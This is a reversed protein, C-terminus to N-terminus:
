TSRPRAPAARPFGPRAAHLSPLRLRDGSRIRTGHDVSRLFGLEDAARLRAVAGGDRGQELAV